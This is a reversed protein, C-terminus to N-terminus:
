MQSIVYVLPILLVVCTAMLIYVLAKSKQRAVPRAQSIEIKPDTVTVTAATDFDPSTSTTPANGLQPVRSDDPKAAAESSSSKPLDSPFAAASSAQTQPSREAAIPRSSASVQVLPQAADWSKWDKWGQQWVMCDTGVRGQEIWDRFEDSSAPGFQEGGPIRVYWEVDDTADDAVDSRVPPPPTAAKPAASAAAVTTPDVIPIQVTVGCEPCIGRKGALFAKVHIKHGNSCNFRIGM